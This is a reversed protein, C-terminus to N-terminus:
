VGYLLTALALFDLVPWWIVTAWLHLVCGLGVWLLGSRRGGEPLGQRRFVGWALWASVFPVLLGHSYNDDVDWIGYLERFTSLFLLGVLAATGVALAGALWVPRRDAPVASAGEAAAPAAPPLTESTSM